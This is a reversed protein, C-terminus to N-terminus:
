VMGAAIMAEVRQDPTMESLKKGNIVKADVRKEALQRWIMNGDLQKKMAKTRQKGFFGTVHEAFEERLKPIFSPDSLDILISSKAFGLGGYDGKRPQIGDVKWRKWSVAKGKKEINQYSSRKKIDYKSTFTRIQKSLAKLKQRAHIQNNQALGEPVPLSGKLKRDPLHEQTQERRRKKAQRREIREAKSPHNRHTANKVLASLWDSDGYQEPTTEKRKRGAKNKNNKM